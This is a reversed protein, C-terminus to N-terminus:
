KFLEILKEIDIKVPLLEMKNSLIKSLEKLSSISAPDIDDICQRNEYSSYAFNFLCSLSENHTENSIIIFKKKAEELGEKNRFFYDAEIKDVLFNNIGFNKVIEKFSEFIDDLKEKFFQNYGKISKLAFYNNFIRSILKKLYNNHKILKIDQDKINKLYQCFCEVKEFIKQRMEEKENADEEDEVKKNKYEKTQLAIENYTCIIKFLINENMEEESLNACNKLEEIEIEIEKKEKQEIYELLKINYEHYKKSIESLHPINKIKEINEKNINIKNKSFSLLNKNSEIIEKYYYEIEPNEIDKFFNNKIKILDELSSELNNDNIIDFFAKRLVLNIRINKNIESYQIMSYDFNQKKEDNQMILIAFKIFKIFFELKKDNQRESYDNLSDLKLNIFDNNIIKEYIQYKPEKFCEGFLNNVRNQIFDYFNSNLRDDDNYKYKTNEYLNIALISYYYLFLLILILGDQTDKIGEGKFIIKSFKKMLELLFLVEKIEIDYYENYYHILNCILIFNYYNVKLGNLDIPLKINQNGKKNNYFYFCIKHNIKTKILPKIKEDKLFKNYKQLINEYSLHEKKLKYEGYILLGIEKFYNIIENYINSKDEEM